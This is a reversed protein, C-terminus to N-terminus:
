NTISDITKTKTLKHQREFEAHVQLKISFVTIFRQTASCIGKIVAGDDEMSKTLLSM